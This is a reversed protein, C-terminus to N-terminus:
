CMAVILPLHFARLGDLFAAAGGVFHQADHADLTVAVCVVHQGNRMWLCFGVTAHLMTAVPADPVLFYRAVPRMQTYYM